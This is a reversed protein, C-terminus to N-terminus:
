FPSYYIYNCKYKDDNDNPYEFYCCISIYQRELERGVFDKHIEFMNKKEYLKKACNEDFKFSISLKTYRRNEEYILKSEILERKNKGYLIEINDDNYVIKEINKGGHMLDLAQITKCNLIYCKTALEKKIFLGSLINFFIKINHKVNVM